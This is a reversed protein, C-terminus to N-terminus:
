WVCQFVVAPGDFRRVLTARAARGEDQLFPYRAVLHRIAVMNREEEEELWLYLARSRVLDIMNYHVWQELYRWLPIIIPFRLVYHHAFGYLPMALAHAGIPDHEVMAELEDAMFRAVYQALRPFQLRMATTFVDPANWREATEDTPGLTLSPDGSEPDRSFEDSEAYEFIPRLKSPSFQTITIRDEDGSTFHVNSRVWGIRAATRRSTRIDQDPPFGPFVLLLDKVIVPDDGIADQLTPGEVVVSTATLPRPPYLLSYETEGREEVPVRDIPMEGRDNVVTVVTDEHLKDIMEARIRMNPATVTHHMPTDYFEDQPNRVAHFKVVFLEFTSTWFIRSSALYWAHWPTLGRNNRVENSVRPHRLLTKLAMRLGSSRLINGHDMPHLPTDGDDNRAHGEAGADIMALITPKELDFESILDHHIILNRAQRMFTHLYTDRPPAPARMGMSPSDPGTSLWADKLITTFIEEGRKWGILRTNKFLLHLPTSGSNNRQNVSGAGHVRLWRVVETNTVFASAAYHLVSSGSDDVASMDAGRDRLWQLIQMQDKPQYKRTPTPKFFQTMHVVTVGLASRSLVVERETIEPEESDLEEQINLFFRAHLHTAAVHLVNQGSNNQLGFFIGGGMDFLHIAIDELDLALALHVVTNGFESDRVGFDADVAVEDLLDLMGDYKVLQILRMLASRGQWVESVGHDDRHGSVLERLLNAYVEVPKEDEEHPDDKWATILTHIDSAGDLTQADLSAGAELILLAGEPWFTSIAKLLPTHGLTGLVVNVQDSYAALADQLAEEDKRDIARHYADRAVDVTTM